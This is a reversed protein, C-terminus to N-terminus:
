TKQSLSGDSGLMGLADRQPKAFFVFVTFLFSFGALLALARSVVQGFSPLGAGDGMFVHYGRSKSRESEKRETCLTRERM